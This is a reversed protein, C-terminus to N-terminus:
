RRAARGAIAKGIRQMRENLGGGKGGNVYKDLVDIANGVDAPVEERLEDLTRYEAWAREAADGYRSGGLDYNQDAERREAEQYPKREQTDGEGRAAKELVADASPYGGTGGTGFIEPDRDDREMVHLNLEDLPVEPM